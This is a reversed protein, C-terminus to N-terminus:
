LQDFDTTNENFSKILESNPEKWIEFNKALYVRAKKSAYHKQILEISSHQTISNTDLGMYQYMRSIYTKRVNELSMPFKPNTKKHFHSFCDSMNRVVLERSMEEPAIIYTEPPKKGYGKSILFEALEKIIPVAVKVPTPNLKKKGNTKKFNTMNIYGGILEGHENLVVDEFKASAQDNWRRGTLLTFIITDKSWDKRVNRKTIGQKGKYERIPDATDIINLVADIDSKEAWLVEKEPNNFTIGKFWNKILYGREILYDFFTIYCNFHKDYYIESWEKRNSIYKAICGVIHDNFDYVTITNKNLNQSKCEQDIALLMNELFRKITKIYNITRAVKKHHPVNVNNVYDLYVAM